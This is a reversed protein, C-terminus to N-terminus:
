QLKNCMLMYFFYCYPPPSSSSDLVDSEEKIHKGAKMAKLEDKIGNIERNILNNQGVIFLYLNNIQDMRKTMTGYMVEYNDDNVITTTNDLSDSYDSTNYANRDRQKTSIPGGQESEEWIVEMKKRLDSILLLSSSIQETYESFVSNKLNGKM